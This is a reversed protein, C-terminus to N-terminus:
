RHAACRRVDPLEGVPGAAREPQHEAARGTGGLLVVSGAAVGLAMWMRRRPLFSRLPLRAKRAFLAAFDGPSQSGPPEEEGESDGASRFRGEALQRVHNFM